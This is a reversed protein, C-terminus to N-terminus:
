ICQIKGALVFNGTMKMAIGADINSCDASDIDVNAYVDVDAGLIYICM